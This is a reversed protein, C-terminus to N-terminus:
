ASATEMIRKVFEARKEKEGEDLFCWSEISGDEMLIGAFNSGTLGCPPVDSTHVAYPSWEQIENSHETCTFGNELDPDWFVHMVADKLCLSTPKEIPGGVVRTCKGPSYTVPGM